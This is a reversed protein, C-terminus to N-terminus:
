FPHISSKRFHIESSNHVQVTHTSGQYRDMLYNTISKFFHDKSSFFQNLTCLFEEHSRGQRYLPTKSPYLLAEMNKKCFDFLFSTHQLWRDKKIYQANGGCKQNGVVFDNQKLAFGPIQLSEQYIESTWSMIKEPYPPFDFEKKNCIFTVFCTNQDVVVTGGGSFRKLIPLNLSEATSRCVLEEVKGSIGMVIAPSSGSSLICINQSSNSLLDKELLLQDEIFLNNIRIISFM